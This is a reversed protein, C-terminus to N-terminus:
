ELQLKPETIMLLDNEPTDSFVKRFGRALLMNAVLSLIIVAVLLVGTAILTNKEKVKETIAFTVVCLGAGCVLINLAPYVIIGSLIKRSGTAM